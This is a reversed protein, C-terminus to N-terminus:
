IRGAKPVSSRARPMVREKETIRSGANPTMLEGTLTVKEVSAAPLTATARTTTASKRTTATSSSGGKVSKYGEGKVSTHGEHATAGVATGLIGVALLVLAYRKMFNEKPDMTIHTASNMSDVVQRM